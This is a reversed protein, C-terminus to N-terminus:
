DTLSIAANKSSLFLVRSDVSDSSGVAGVLGELVNPELDEFFAILRFSLICRSSSLAAIERSFIAVDHM